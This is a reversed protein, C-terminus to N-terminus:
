NNKIGMKTKQIDKKSKYFVFFVIQRSMNASFLKKKAM